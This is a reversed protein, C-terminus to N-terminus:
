MGILLNKLEHTAGFYSSLFFGYLVNLITTVLLINILTNKWSFLNKKSLILNKLLVVLLILLPILVGFLSGLFLTYGIKVAIVSLDRNFAVDILSDPIQILAVAYQLCLISIITKNLNQILIKKM